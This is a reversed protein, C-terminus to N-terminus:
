SPLSSPVLIDEASHVKDRRDRADEVAPFGQVMPVELHEM